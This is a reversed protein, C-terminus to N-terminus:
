QKWVECWHGLAYGLKCGHSMAHLTGNLAGEGLKLDLHLHHRYRNADETSIHGFMKGTLCANEFKADNVLTWMQDSLCAHIDGSSKFSIQLPVEGQYTHM